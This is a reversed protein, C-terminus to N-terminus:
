RKVRSQRDSREINKLFLFFFVNYHLGGDCDVILLVDLQATSRELYLGTWAEEPIPEPRVLSYQKVTAKIM